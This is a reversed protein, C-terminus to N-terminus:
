NPKIPHRDGYADSLALSWSGAASSSSPVPFIKRLHRPLFQDCVLVCYDYQWQIAFTPFFATGFMEQLSPRPPPTLFSDNKNIM